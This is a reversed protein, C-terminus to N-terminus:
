LLITIDILILDFLYLNGIGILTRDFTYIYVVTYTLNENAKLWSSKVTNHVPIGTKRLIGFIIEVHCRKAKPKTATQQLKFMRAADKFESVLWFPFRFPIQCRIM